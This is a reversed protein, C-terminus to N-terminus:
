NNLPWTPTGKKMKDLTEQYNVNDPALKVVLEEWMIAEDGRNLKYLLNAYTDFYTSIPQMLVSRISWALAKNLEEKNSSYQFIRWANNNLSFYLDVNQVDKKPYYKEVFDTLFRTYETWNKVSRFWDVKANMIVRDAYYQGYTKSIISFLELWKPTDGSKLQSLKPSIIEKHLITSVRIQSYSENGMIKNITESNKLFFLFGLDNSTKTHLSMFEINEKKFWDSKNLSKIYTQSIEEALAKDNLVWSVASSLYNMEVLDRKGKKYSDLLKYIDKEPALADMALSIFAQKTILGGSINLIRGDPTFFLYTPYSRVRYQDEISRADAYSAKIIDNDGAATDMQMKTSIFKDNYLSGVEPLTYIEKEM